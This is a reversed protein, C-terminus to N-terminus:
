AGAYWLGGCTIVVCALCVIALLLESQYPDREGLLAKQLLEQDASYESQQPPQYLLGIKVKGTDYPPSKAQM